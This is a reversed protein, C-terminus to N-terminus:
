SVKKTNAKQEGVTMRMLFSLTTLRSATRCSGSGPSLGLKRTPSTAVAAVIKELSFADISTRLFLYPIEERTRLFAVFYSMGSRTTLYTARLSLNQTYQLSFNVIPARLRLFRALQSCM